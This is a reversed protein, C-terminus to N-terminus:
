FSFKLALQLIRAPIVTNTASGFGPNGITRVPLGFSARNLLNFAEFRFEASRADVFRLKKSLAIDWSVLGGGRLTNRGITGNQNLIYFDTLLRGPAIKLIQPGHGQIFILGNMTSPRDTLNGDLNADFPIALTFPQGTRAQFISSVQWGELLKANALRPVDVIVAASVRHRIDFDASAREARLNFSDQAISSAGMSAITDSVDDIAHSWTYAGSYVFGGTLRKRVEIQFAHYNSDASNEFVQYAGLDRNRRQIPLQNEIGPELTDFSVIPTAGAKSILVQKPTVNPGGNPTVIRTLKAARAGVYSAAIFYDRFIERELTLHWQQVYPTRLDKSPLTFSLGGAERTARFLMGVLAVFDKPSGAVQNTGAVFFPLSNGSSNGLAFFSPNNANLGDHGFFSSESLFPIENPFVNRSQSVVAGLITDYYLGYGARVAMKGNKLPDWAFGVHPSFNNRDANYISNRGDLLIRYANIANNFAATSQPDDFASQGPAPITRLSIANEIRRNVERPVTNFEYRLGLDFSLNPRIRWNENVFVNYEGFRLGIYSDPVSSTITQFVSSVQGINAFQVGPLFRVSSSSPHDLDRLELMGNNIEMRPRYNRDQRSNFQVLRIDAGVRITHGLLTKILTDAFQFTNNVRGQPFLAADLGVPSYPRILLEGLPGTSSNVEVSGPILMGAKTYATIQGALTKDQKALSLPNQPLESFELRTRGYSFKVQNFLTGTLGSDLILSISQSRMASSIASNIANGISPLDRRDDSCNYRANLTYGTAFQISAKLSGVYGQGSSPQIQSFTNVGFPGAVNNPLPYLSLLNLGLPTAGSTEYDFHNNLSISSTIVKFRPLGLFLRDDATPSAFHQERSARIGQFEFSGFLQGRDKVIPGGLTLGAQIRTLPDKGGSPGGMYDFFNRANMRSNTSFGYAQGHLENSGSKSIANVQSGLNRGMEADWLLTSIQFEQVSEASQPLPSLYGQRRVAVDQDNNDSGDITFNNARARMGNVSFQGSTGVGAGIGPGSSESIAQPPESVGAVLFALSDFTRIGPLPLSSLFYEDFNAGRLPNETNVMQVSGIGGSVAPDQQGQTQSANPLPPPPPMDPQQISMRLVPRMVSFSAPLFGAAVVGRSKNRSSGAPKRIPKLLFPPIKIPTPTVLRIYIPGHQASEFDPHRCYVTYVGSSLLPLNFTGNDFTRTAWKAGTTKNRVEVVAKPIPLGNAFNRVIGNLSGSVNNQGLLLCGYSCAFVCLLILAAAKRIRHVLAEKMSTRSKM